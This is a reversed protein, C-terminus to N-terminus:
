LKHQKSYIFEGLKYAAREAKTLEEYEKLALRKQAELMEARTKVLESAQEIREVSTYPTLAFLRNLSDCFLEQRAATAERGNTYTTLLKELSVM